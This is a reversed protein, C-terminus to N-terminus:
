GKKIFDEAQQVLTRVEEAVTALDRGAEGVSAAEIAANLAILSTQKSLDRSIAVAEDIKISSSSGHAEAALQQVTDFFLEVLERSTLEKESYSNEDPTIVSLKPREVAVEHSALESAANSSVKAYVNQASLEYMLNRLSVQVMDFIAEAKEKMLKTINLVPAVDKM